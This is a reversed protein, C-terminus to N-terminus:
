IVARWKYSQAKDRAIFMISFQAYNQRFLRDVVHSRPTTDERTTNWFKANKRAQLTTGPPSAASEFTAADGREGEKKGNMRGEGGGGCGGVDARPSLPMLRPFFAGGTRPSARMNVRGAFM